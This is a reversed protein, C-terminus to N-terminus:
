LDADREVHGGGFERMTFQFWREDAETWPGTLGFFSDLRPHRSSSRSGTSQEDTESRSHAGAEARKKEMKAM